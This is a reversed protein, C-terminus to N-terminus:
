IHILSLYLLRTDSPNSITLMKQLQSYTYDLGLETRVMEHVEWTKFVEQYDLTLNSAVQIDAMSVSIGSQNLIYLKSTAEYQPEVNYYAYAGFALAGVVAALIVFHIKGLVRFFLEMLDISAGEEEKEAAQAGGQAQVLAAALANVLMNQDIETSQPNSGTRRQFDQAM